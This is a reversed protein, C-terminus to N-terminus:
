LAVELTLCLAYLLGVAVPGLYRFPALAVILCGVGMLGVLWACLGTMVGFKVVFLVATLLALFGGALRANRPNNLVYAQYGAPETKAQGSALYWRQFALLLLFFFTSIM